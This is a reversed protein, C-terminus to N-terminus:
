QNETLPSSEATTRRFGYSPFGPARKKRMGKESNESLAKIKEKIRGNRDPCLRKRLNVNKIVLGASSPLILLTLSSGLEASLGAEWVNGAMSGM